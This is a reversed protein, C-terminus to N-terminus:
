DKLFLAHYEQESLHNKMLSTLQTFLGELENDELRKVLVQIFDDDSFKQLYCIITDEDTKRDLGFAFMGDYKEVFRHSHTM